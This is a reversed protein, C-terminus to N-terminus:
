QRRFETTFSVYVLFSLKYLFLKKVHVSIDTMLIFICNKESHLELGCGNETCVVFTTRLALM